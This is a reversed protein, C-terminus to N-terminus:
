WWALPVVDSPAFNSLKMSATWAVTLPRSLLLMAALAPMTADFSDIGYAAYVGAHVDEPTAGASPLPVIVPENTWIPFNTWKRNFSEGPLVVVNPVPEYENENGTLASRVNWPPGIPATYECSTDAPLKACDNGIRAVAVVNLM